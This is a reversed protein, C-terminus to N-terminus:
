FGPAPSEYQCVGVCSPYSNGSGASSTSEACVALVPERVELKVKRVVPKTYKKM